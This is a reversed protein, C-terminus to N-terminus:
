TSPGDFLKLFSVEGGVLHKGFGEDTSFPMGNASILDTPRHKERIDGCRAGNADKVSNNAEEFFPPSM